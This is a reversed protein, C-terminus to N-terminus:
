RSQFHAELFWFDKDLARSVETFLDSTTSDGSEDSTHIAARVTAAVAAVQRTLARVHQAGDSAGLDYEGIASGRALQTSCM